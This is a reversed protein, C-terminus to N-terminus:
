IIRIIKGEKVKQNLQKLQEKDGTKLADYLSIEVTSLQIGCFPCFLYDLYKKTKEDLRTFFIRKCIKCSTTTTKM